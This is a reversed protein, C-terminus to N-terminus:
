RKRKADEANRISFPYGEGHEAQVKQVAEEASRAWVSIRQGPEDDIWIYGVYEKLEKGESESM